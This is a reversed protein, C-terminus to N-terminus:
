RGKGHAARMRVRIEVNLKRRGSPRPDVDAVEERLRPDLADALKRDRLEVSSISGCPPPSVSQDRARARQCSSSFKM